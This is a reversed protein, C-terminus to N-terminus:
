GSDHPGQSALQWLLSGTLKRRGCHGRLVSWASAGSAEQSHSWTELLRTDRVTIFGLCKFGHGPGPPLLLSVTLLLPRSVPLARGPLQSLGLPSVPEQWCLAGWAELDRRALFHQKKQWKVWLWM